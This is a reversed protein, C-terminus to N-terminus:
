QRGSSSGLGQRPTWARRREGRLVSLVGLLAAANVMVFYSPVSLLRSRGAPTRRLLWGAAALLYFAAQAIAAAAFLGGRPALVASALALPVLFFPALHRLLKHSVLELSYFGASWLRTGLGLLARVSHNTVRIKRRFEAAGEEPAEEWVVAEPAYVLRRGALAVRTSIAIDDAQALEALPVYLSRRLAYLTGDAAFVSGAASELRKQWTDFRWYLNEGVETADAGRGLRYRKHGCVGGVEPDAFPELLRRLSGPDLMGNADTLVLIEHRAAAAGANLAAGKGSRPLALLRVGRSAHARAIEESRDTSGDSVVLIELRDRPYDLGLSNELKGALVREEDFVPIVMTVPPEFPAAGVPRPFWRSRVWLLLPYGAYLYACAAASVLFVAVPLASM